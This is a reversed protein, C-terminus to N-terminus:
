WSVGAPLDVWEARITSFSGMSSYGKLKFYSSSTKDLGIMRDKVSKSLTRYEFIVRGYLVNELVKEVVNTSTVGLNFTLMKRTISVGDDGLKEYQRVNIQSVDKLLIDKELKNTDSLIKLFILGKEM